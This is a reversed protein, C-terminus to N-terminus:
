RSAQRTFIARAHPKQALSRDSTQFPLTQEVGQLQIGFALQAPPLNTVVEETVSRCAAKAALRHLTFGVAIPSVSGNKKTLACLSSGYLISRIALSVHGALFM